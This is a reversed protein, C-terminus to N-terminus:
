NLSYFTLALLNIIYKPRYLNADPESFSSISPLKAVLKDLNDKYLTAAPFKAIINMIELTRKWDKRYRECSYM